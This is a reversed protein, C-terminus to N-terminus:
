KKKKKKKKKKGGGKKKKKEKERERQEKKREKEERKREKEEAKRKEKERKRKKVRENQPNQDQTLLNPDLHVNRTKRKIKKVRKEPDPGPDLDNRIKRGTGKIMKELLDPATENRKRRRKEIGM